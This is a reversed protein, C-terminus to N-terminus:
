SSESEHCPRIGPLVNDAESKGSSLDKGTHSRPNDLIMTALLDAETHEIDELVSMSVLDCCEPWRVSKREALDDDEAVLEESQPFITRPQDYKVQLRPTLEGAGQAGVFSVIVVCLGLVFDGKVRREDSGGHEM